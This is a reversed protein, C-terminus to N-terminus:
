VKHFMKSNKIKHILEQFILFFELIYSTKIVMFMKPQSFIKQNKKQNSSNETWKGRSYLDQLHCYSSNM